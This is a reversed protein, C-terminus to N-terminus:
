ASLPMPLLTVEALHHTLRSLIGSPIRTLFKQLTTFHPIVRLNLILWVEGMLSVLDVVNRYTAHLYEKFLLLTLLQQQTHTHGSFRHSYRPLPFHHVQAVAAHLFGIYRNLSM